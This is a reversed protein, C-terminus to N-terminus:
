KKSKYKELQKEVEYAEVAQMDVELWELALIDNQDERSLGYFASPTLGWAKAARLEFVRSGPAFSWEGM